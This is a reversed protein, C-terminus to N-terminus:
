VKIKMFDEACIINNFVTRADEEIEQTNKYRQSFHTLVLKQVNAQNAIMAAQQATLHKYERAKEELSSDYVSESILLDANEALEICNDCLVTDAIYTIKKGRVIYTVKDPDIKNGKFTVQEGAQLKGLLPGEPIGLKKIEKIKIRRRDKEIFNFGLCTIGHELPLAELAFDKNEFFRKKKIDIVEFNVKNDFIFTDMMKEIIKSSGEPGYIKLVGSYESAGLTQLLGPLGLVHDGHWHSILIKTIKTLKIGALRLQRQTGEGCDILINEAKYSLLIAGTNREKTPVMASTGLFVIQMSELPNTKKKLEKSEKGLM